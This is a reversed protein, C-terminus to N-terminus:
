KTKYFGIIQRGLGMKAMQRYLDLTKNIEQKALFNEIYTRAYHCEKGVDKNKIYNTHKNFLFFDIPFDSVLDINEWGKSKCLSNLAKANFYSIHDPTIIWYPEDVYGNELLSTQTPSFDNPVEIVLLAGSNALKKCNELLQEPELVHELVNDLWILDFKEDAEILKATEEDIDGVLLDEAISSNHTKIGFDSFDVGKIGWNKEKLFKLTWGEGTGIDLANLKEDSKPFHKQIIEYKLKFKIEINEIEDKTYTSSYKEDAQYYKKQYYNSLEQQTPKDALTYFGYKNRTVKAKSTNM